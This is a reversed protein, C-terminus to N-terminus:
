LATHSNTQPTLVAESVSVATLERNYFRRFTSEAAWNAARLVSDITVGMLIAKSSAAGRTSHASFSVIDIGANQLCSKIWHGVISSTVPRHPRRTSLFFSDDDPQRWDVTSAIYSEMCAVPCCLGPFRNVVFSQLSGARQSKRLRCFSFSMATASFNLSKLSISCIESVRSLISLSLLMALKKSLIALPLDSNPGLSSFHRLVMDPDWMSDYRPTPPKLNYCGKLLQVVLPHGGVKKGDIPELTMSLTSRHVNITSTAFGKHFLHYFYQLIFNLSPSLPDSDRKDCWDRWSTWASQYAASTSSRNSAMLLGIVDSSLGQNELRSRIVELRVASVQQVPPTSATGVQALPCSVSDSPIHASRRYVNPSPSSVLGTVALAPLHSSFGSQGAPGQSSMTSHPFLAPLHIGSTGGGLKFQVRESGVRETSPAVFRFPSAPREM